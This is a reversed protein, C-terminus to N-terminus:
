IPPFRVCNLHSYGKVEERMMPTEAWLGYVSLIQCVMESMAMRSLGAVSGSTVIVVVVSRWPEVWLMGVVDRVEQNPHHM